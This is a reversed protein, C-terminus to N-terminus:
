WRAQKQALRRIRGSPSRGFSVGFAALPRHMRSVCTKWDAPGETSAYQDFAASAEQHSKTGPGPVPQECNDMTLPITADRMNMIIGVIGINNLINGTTAIRSSACVCIGDLACNPPNNCSLTNNDSGILQLGILNGSVTNHAATVALDLM